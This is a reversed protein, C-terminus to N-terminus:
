TKKGKGERKKIKLQEDNEVEEKKEKSFLAPL